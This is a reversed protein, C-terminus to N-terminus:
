QYLVFVHDTACVLLICTSTCLRPKPSGFTTFNYGGGRLSAQYLPVKREHARPNGPVIVPFQAVEIVDSGIQYQVSLLLLINQQHYESIISYVHTVLNKWVYGLCTEAMQLNTGQGLCTKELSETFFFFFFICGNLTKSM